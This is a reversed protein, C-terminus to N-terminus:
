IGNPDAANLEFSHQEVPNSATDFVTHTFAILGDDGTGPMISIQPHPAPARYKFKGGSYKTSAVDTVTRTQYRRGAGDYAMETHASHKDGSCVLRGNRDYYNNFQFHNATQTGPYRETRYVRG